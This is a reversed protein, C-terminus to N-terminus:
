RVSVGDQCPPVTKTLSCNESHGEHKWVEQRCLCHSGKNQVGLTNIFHAAKSSLCLTERLVTSFKKHRQFNWVVFPYTHKCTAFNAQALLCSQQSGRMFPEIERVCAKKGPAWGVRDAPM